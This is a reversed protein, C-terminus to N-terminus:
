VRLLSAEMPVGPRLPRWSTFLGRPTIRPEADGARLAVLVSLLILVQLGYLPLSEVAFRHHLVEQAEGPQAFPTRLECVEVVPTWSMMLTTFCVRSICSM